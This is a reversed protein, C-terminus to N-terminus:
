PFAFHDGLPARAVDCGGRGGACRFRLDTLARPERLAPRALGPDCHAILGVDQRVTPAPPAAAHHEKRADRESKLHTVETTLAAVDAASAVVQKRAQALEDTRETLDRRLDGITQDREALEAGAAAVRREAQPQFVVGYGLGGALVVLALVIGQAVVIRRLRKGAARAALTALEVDRQHERERETAAAEREAQVRAREVEAARYAEDHPRRTRGRKKAGGSTRSAVRRM